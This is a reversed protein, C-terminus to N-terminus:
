DHATGSALELYQTRYAAAVTEARYRTEARVRALVSLEARRDDDLSMYTDLAHALEEVSGPTVVFQKDDAFEACSGVNTTIVPVGAGAAEAGVLPMTEGYLSSIVLVAGSGLVSNPESTPGELSISGDELLARAGAEDIAEIMAPHSPEVGPGFASLWWDPHKHQVRAFAEFLVRHGKVPHNRAISIIRRSARQWSASEAIDSGNLIASKVNKMRRSRIFRAMDESDSSPIVAAFRFSLVGLVRSIARTLIHDDSGLSHTHMTTTKPIRTPLLATVLDSHFLHSSIVDPQFEEVQAKLARVMGVLNRSTPPFRLYTVSEFAEELQDSLTGESMLVVLKLTDEADWHKALAVLLREAGGIDADTCVFLVRM